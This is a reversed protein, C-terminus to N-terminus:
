AAEVERVVAGTRKSMESACQGCVNGCWGGVKVHHTAGLHIEPSTLGRSCRGNHSNIFGGMPNKEHYCDQSM